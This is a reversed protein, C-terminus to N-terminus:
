RVAREVFGNSQSDGVLSALLVTPLDGRLRAVEGMLDQLAPEQDSRLAVRGDFGCKSIDCVMQQAVWEVGAGKYPVAHAFFMGTRRDRGVLVPQSPGGSVDGLFTWQLRSRSPVRVPIGHETLFTPRGRPCAFSAGVAFLITRETTSRSKQRSSGVNPRRIRSRVHKRVRKSCTRVCSIKTMWLQLSLRTLRVLTGSNTATGRAVPGTDRM